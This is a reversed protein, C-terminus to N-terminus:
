LHVRLLSDDAPTCPCLLECPHGCDTIRPDNLVDFCVSCEEQDAIFQKLKEILAERQEPTLNSVPVAPSNTAARPNRLDDLFSQPVLDASLCLQRVSTLDHTSAALKRRTLMALVNAASQLDAIDDVGGVEGSRMSEEFRRRSEAHVEDYVCRTEDDLKVPVQYHEIPPLSVLPKGDKDKTEKTRRLLAQGVIGQLLRAAEPSGSKLPRLVLTRFYEHQDLPACMKICTLLSGLDGPNNVIPTGTCIWRREAHLAAFAQTVTTLQTWHTGLESKAKPNKMVHGEDAVIRKWKMKLLPGSSKSVKAKKGKGSDQSASTPAEAAITQYTTLM